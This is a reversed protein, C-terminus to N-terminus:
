PMETARRLARNAMVIGYGSNEDVGSAEIDIATSTLLTRIQQSTLSPKFSKLLAAVGAAHPAAASTGFFPNLGSNTRFTTGVGDAAAIDPKQRVIGGTSLFNGPTIPTGDAKYFVRRPGDSSFTEVTNVPSISFLNNRKQASVAAVSYANIAASHGWTSGNTNIELVAQRASTTTHLNLFRTEGKYLVIVVRSNAAQSNVMEMPDQRGSQINTSSAVVQTGDASLVYLDYDNTSKGLPDSWQLTILGSTTMLRNYSASGFNHIKGGYGISTQGGDVFDGEWVNSTNDNKSGSNGASSFYLAGDATVDNVAKAIVGDQFVPEAYYLIDDLIIDCGAARLARINNAFDTQTSYATAFYLQAGPALDHIIQLMARGEDSGPYDPSTRPIDGSGVLTVGNSPLDGTSIDTAAGGLNNYSDSLVGIKLGTGDVGYTARALGAGHAIDGQSRVSGALTVPKIYPQISTVESLQAISEVQDVPVLVQITNYNALSRLVEAGNARIKQLLEATVPADTKINIRVQSQSNVKVFTNFHPVRNFLNDRRRAKITYLIASNIKQQAPTRSQKERVLAQIQEVATSPIQVANPSQATAKATAIGVILLLSSVGLSISGKLTRAFRFLSRLHQLM